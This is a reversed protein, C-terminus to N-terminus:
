GSFYGSCLVCRIVEVSHFHSAKRLVDGRRERCAKKDENTLSKLWSLVFAKNDFFVASELDEDYASM